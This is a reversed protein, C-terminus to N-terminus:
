LLAITTKRMATHRKAMRGDVAAKARVGVVRANMRVFTRVPALVGKVVLLVEFLIVVVESAM